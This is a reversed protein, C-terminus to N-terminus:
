GRGRKAGRVPEADQPNDPWHHKPYRRKLEKRVEFYTGEWFSHLDQTLQVPKFGPSLLEMLVPCRGGDVCPTQQMGFCEQLRVSLVPAGSSLRYDVRILSGTPVKLHSPALRDVTQQQEYGLLSWIAEKLDIKKLEALTTRLGGGRELFPPLWDSTRALLAETSLDPLTMEPHWLAVQAVRHQLWDVEDSWNLLSRGESSVAECVVSIVVERSPERLPSSEVVLKGIRWERQMVVCGNKSDWAVKDRKTTMAMIDSQRVPAALLVRGEGGGPAYLSAVSLWHYSANSDGRELRVRDGGALRYTGIDDLSMAVREPYAQAVLRGMTDIPSSTDPVPSSSDQEVRTKTNDVKTMRAYEDAIQLQRSWRGPQKRRRAERMLAIRQGLDTNNEESALPDKEELLAAIDCALQKEADDHASLIMKSIRPHCALRSMRRGLPTIAGSPEIAGLLSLLDRAQSLHGEPPPTLWPLSAIHQEGFAAIDLVMPALDAELLEPIRQDVMRQETAKTWLRYCVGEAVRGARGTRQLAMDKSIRVTELHTLGTRQNVVPTRCFGGDVVIRVGEITLSTEAIPTALVVKRSGQPSPAIAARQQEHPLNGYLPHLVGQGLPEELLAACRAIEGQGPLFALIDGEHTRFAKLVEEAMRHALTGVEADQQAYHVQVPYMRGKCEVIPAQLEDGITTADITASMIIIKLEPRLLQQLQRVLALAVDSHISREHFEDFLVADVGELAADEVLMRTLIGETLVEVRTASSVQKEFRVRYGVQEGVRQGLLFAMREAIQRAALRRPELLLVKGDGHLGRWITLPLLTSKGAGPPATVVLSNHIKLLNNVREAIEAAPLPGTRRIMEEM